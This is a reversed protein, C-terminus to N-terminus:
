EHLKAGISFDGKADSGKHINRRGQIADLIQLIADEYSYIKGETNMADYCANAIAHLLQTKEKSSRKRSLRKLAEISQQATLKM